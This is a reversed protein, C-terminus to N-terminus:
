HVGAPGSSAVMALRCRSSASRAAAERSSCRRQIPTCPASTPRCASFASAASATAVMRACCATICCFRARSPLWHTPPALRGPMHWRRQVLPQAHPKREAEGRAAWFREKLRRGVGGRGAGGASQLSSACCRSALASALCSLWSCASVLRRFPRIASAAPCRLARCSSLVANSVLSVASSLALRSGRPHRMPCTCGSGTAGQYNLRWWGSGAQPMGQRARGSCASSPRQAASFLQMSSSRASRASTTAATLAGSDGPEHLPPAAHM